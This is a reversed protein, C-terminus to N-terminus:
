AYCLEWYCIKRTKLIQWSKKCCFQGFNPNKSTMPLIPFFLNNVPHFKTNSHTEIYFNNSDFILNCHNKM